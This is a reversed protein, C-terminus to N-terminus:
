EKIYPAVYELDYLDIYNQGLAIHRFARNDVFKYIYSSKELDTLYDQYTKSISAVFDSGYLFRNYHKNILNAYLKCKNENIFVYDYLISWSLDLYLNPYLALFQELLKIHALTNMKYSQKSIGMHAWIIKNNPYTDFIQKILPLNKMPETETGLDCHILMPINNREFYFMFDKWKDINIPNICNHDDINLIPKCANIEGVSKIQDKFNKNLLEIYEITKAPRNLDVFSVGYLIVIKDKFKDYYKNYNTGNIFDKAITNHIKENPCDLYYECKSDFPLSQGLGNITCFLVGSEILWNVIVEYPLSANGYGLFHINADAVGYLVDARNIYTPTKYNKLTLKPTFSKSKYYFSVIIVSFLILIIFLIFYTKKSTINM